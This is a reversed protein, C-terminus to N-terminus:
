ELVDQSAVGWFIWPVCPPCLSLNENFIKRLIKTLIKRLIKTLIELWLAIGMYIRGLLLTSNRM